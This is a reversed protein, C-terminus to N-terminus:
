PSTQSQDAEREQAEREQVEREQVEREQLQLREAESVYRHFPSRANLWYTEMLGKGKVNVAGRPECLYRGKLSKYLAESIQIRDADGSSEMRSAVNVTDGWLDYIFKSTGIVGAVVPGVHIGVRIAFDRDLEQRLEQIAQQMDLAMEAIAEIHYGNEMPIGGAVMYADGITKIKELGHFTARRDFATFIRNLLDVLAIPELEASLPTFGVIDAFLITARDFHKAISGRDVKLREAIPKPLINLLLEESREQELRLAEQAERRVTIDDLVGLIGIVQGDRDHIPLKNIDLWIKTGDEGPKFKVAEVHLVPTDTEMIEQDRQRFEEALKPPLLDFDTKGIAEEPSALGAAEAWHRNCGQFVLNTDKWFVQQPINDLIMRMYAENARLQKQKERLETMDRFFWIRGYYENSYDSHDARNLESYLPSSYREFTRGNILDIEDRSTDFRFEQLYALTASFENPLRLQSRIAQLVAETGQEFLDASIDWLDLLRQNHACIEGREDFVLIGDLAAERQAHLEAHSRHLETIDESICLLYAIEGQEDRIPVKSTRLTLTQGIANTFPEAEIAIIAGQAVTDLDHQSFLAAQDPQYLEAVTKGQIEERSRGSIKEYGQNLSILRFDDRVDKVFVALPLNEIISDLFQKSQRLEVALRRRDTIDIATALLCLEGDLDIKTASLLVTLMTGTHTRFEVEETNIEDGREVREVLELRRDLDSWLGLDLESRGIVDARDGLEFLDLFSANIELIQGTKHSVIASPTPSARFISAFREQSRSLEDTREAVRGALRDFAHQVQGQMTQFAQRLTEIERIRLRSSRVTLVDPDLRGSAIGQAAQSLSLIPRSISRGILAGAAISLILVVGCLIITQNTQTDIQDFFDAEPVITLILWDLEITPDLPVVQVFYRDGDLAISWHQRESVNWPQAGTQESAQILRDLQSFESMTRRTISGDPRDAIMVEGDSSAIPEQSGREILYVEGRDSIAANQLFRDLADLRLDTGIVGIARGERDRVPEARMIGLKKTSFMSYVPSWIARDGSITGTYWDRTTIDYDPARDLEAGPSGDPQYRYQVFDYNTDRTAQKIVLDSSSSTSRGVGIFDRNADNTAFQITDIAPYFELQQAFLRTLAASNELNLLNLEITGRITRNVLSPRQLYQKIETQLQNASAALLRDALDNVSKQGNRFSLWGTVGVVIVVQAVFPVITVTLLSCNPFRLRLPRDRRPKSM